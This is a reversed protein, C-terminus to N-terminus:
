AAAATAPSTFIAATPPGSQIGTWPRTGPSPSRTPATPPSPGSTVGAAKWRGTPSAIAARRGARSRPTAKGRSRANKGPPRTCWGCTHAGPPGRKPRRFIPRPFSWKRATRRGPLITAPTASGSSRSAPLAWSSFAAAAASPVFRSATATPPSPPGPTTPGSDPTLNVPNKGGVRQAYIDWNGSARSAYVFSRGDPSLSPQQEPGPQDTLQAFTARIPAPPTEQRRLLQWALLAAVALVALALAPILWRRAPGSSLQPAVPRQLRKLDARLDAATQHRLDREKELAKTVIAALAPSLASFDPARHLIADFILATSTGPFPPAGTAMEYLVGGFSFLDTRADVEEARAQEPSMYSVTGLIAGKGTLDVSVTPAAERAREAVLKALGFDLIKAQRRTTVFLNAPKIDRHVIGKSHAADLADAIQIGLDLLEETKLPRGGIRHNLTEGDLFEMVLFPRGDHEGIDYITCINPHNLASAARAERQFRELAQRDQAFEEPLFKLAVHRGLRTDEAKYVVGMGGSGLKELVRYHSITQGTM